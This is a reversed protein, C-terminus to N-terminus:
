RDEAGEPVIIGDEELWEKFEVPLEKIVTGRIACHKFTPYWVSFQCALINSRTVKPFTAAM